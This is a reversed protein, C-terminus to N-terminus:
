VFVCVYVCLGCQESSGPLSAYHKNGPDWLATVKQRTEEGAGGVEVERGATQLSPGYAM